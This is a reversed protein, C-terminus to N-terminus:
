HVIGHKVDIFCLLCYKQKTYELEQLSTSFVITYPSFILM